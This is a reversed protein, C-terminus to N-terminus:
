ESINDRFTCYISRAEPGEVIDRGVNEYCFLQRELHPDIKVKRQRGRITLLLYPLDFCSVLRRTLAPDDAIDSHNIWQTTCRALIDIM